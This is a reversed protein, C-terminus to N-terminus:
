IANTMSSNIWDLFKIPIVTYRGHDLFQSNPLHYINRSPVTRHRQLNFMVRTAYQVRGYACLRPQGIETLILGMIESNTDAYQCSIVLVFGGHMPPISSTGSLQLPANIDVYSIFSLDKNM